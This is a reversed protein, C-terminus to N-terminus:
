KTPSGIIKNKDLSALHNSSEVAPSLLHQYVHGFVQAVHLESDSLLHLPNNLM